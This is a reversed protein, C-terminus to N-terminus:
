KSTLKWVRSNVSKDVEEAFNLFGRFGSFPKIRDHNFECFPIGLKYSLYKEKAGSVLLDPRYKNLLRSLELPNADDFLILERGSKEIIKLYDEPIGNQTGSMIVDMGLDEFARILSWAKNGGVYIAVTKGELVSRYRAVERNTEKAMRVIQSEASELGFFESISILSDMTERIGFFNVNIHPIGYRREMEEALYGSSKSCQVLNLRATHAVSIAAVTSDGTISAVVEIGMEELLRKIEWLDGAVNFEGVLNVSREVTEANGRGIVHDLLVDCALQHGLSKNFSRFGESQVPIVWKGTKDEATRCVATIDDGIVGSVCTSYVFIASPSYIEDVELICKLLKDEGGFVVDREELDTSFGTRYLDSKSSRSGRIDWTCAACGVPGHVLHAADTIPMLVVRAGGYVCSRQTVMGPVSAENCRPGGGGCSRKFHERRSPLTEILTDM